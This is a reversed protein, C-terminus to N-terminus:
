YKRYVDESIQGEPRFSSSHPIMLIPLKPFCWCVPLCKGAFEIMKENEKIWSSYKNRQDQPSKRKECGLNGDKEAEM